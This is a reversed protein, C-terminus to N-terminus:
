ALPIDWNLTDLEPASVVTPAMLPSVRLADDRVVAVVLPDRLTCDLPVPVRARSVPLVDVDTMLMPAVLAVVTLMPLVPCVAKTLPVSDTPADAPLPAKVLLPEVAFVVREMPSRADPAHPVVGYV